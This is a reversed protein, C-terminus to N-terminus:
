QEQERLYATLVETSPTQEFALKGNIIVSPVPAPRGIEKSIDTYHLAGNLEKTYIIEVSLADGFASAVSEVVRTM